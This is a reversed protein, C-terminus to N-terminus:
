LADVPLGIVVHCGTWTIRCRLVLDVCNDNSALLWLLLIQWLVWHSTACLNLSLHIILQVADRTVARILFNINDFLSAGVIQTASARRLGGASISEEWTILQVDILHRTDGDAKYALTTLFHLFGSFHQCKRSPWTCHAASTLGRLDGNNNMAM